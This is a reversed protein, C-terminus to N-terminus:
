IQPHSYDPKPDLCGLVVSSPCVQLITHGFHIPSRLAAVFSRPSSSRTAACHLLLFQIMKSRGHLTTYNTIRM